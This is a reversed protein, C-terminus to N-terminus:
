QPKGIWRNLLPNPKPVGM